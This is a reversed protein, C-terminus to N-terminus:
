PEDEPTIVIVSGPPVDRSLELVLKDVLPAVYEFETLLPNLTIVSITRKAMNQQFRLKKDTTVMVHFGEGEAAVLLKGNGLEQWGFDRAHFVVHGEILRAFRVDVCNDLLM